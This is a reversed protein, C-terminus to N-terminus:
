RRLEPWPLAGSSPTNGGRRPAPSLARVAATRWPALLRRAVGLLRFALGSGAFFHKRSRLSSVKTASRRERRGKPPRWPRPAAAMRLRLATTAAASAAHAQKAQAAAGPASSADGPARPAVGPPRSGAICVTKEASHVGYKSQCDM